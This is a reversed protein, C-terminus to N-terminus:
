KKIKFHTGRSVRTISYLDLDASSNARKLLGAVESKGSSISSIAGQMKGSVNNSHSKIENNGGITAPGRMLEYKRQLIGYLEKEARSLQERLRDSKLREGECERKWRTIENELAECRSSWQREIAICEAEIEMSQKAQEELRAELDVNIHELKEIRNQQAEIIARCQQFETYEDNSMQREFLPSEPINSGTLQGGGSSALDSRSNFNYRMGGNGM